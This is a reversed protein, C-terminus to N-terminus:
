GYTYIFAYQDGDTIPTLDVGQSAYDGNQYFAWYSADEAYIASEGDVALIYLGFPGLEGELLGEEMLLAGLYEEDTHYTLDKTSGDKHVVQVQITKSGSVTAPRTAAYIGLFLAIVAAFCLLAILLRKKKM